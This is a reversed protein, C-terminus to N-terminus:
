ICLIATSAHPSPKCSPKFSITNICVPPSGKLKAEALTVHGALVKVLKLQVFAEKTALKFAAIVPPPVTMPTGGFPVRGGFAFTTIKVELAGVDDGAANAAKDSV